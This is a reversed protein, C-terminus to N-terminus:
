KINYQKNTKKDYLYEKYMYEYIVNENIIWLDKLYMCVFVYIFGLM